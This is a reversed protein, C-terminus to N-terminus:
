SGAMAVAFVVTYIFPDGDGAARCRGLRRQYVTKM